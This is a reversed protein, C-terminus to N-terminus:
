DRINDIKNILKLTIRQERKLAEIHSNQMREFHVLRDRDNTICYGKSNAKDCVVVYGLARLQKSFEAITRTTTYLGRSNLENVIESAKIWKNFNKSLITLMDLCTVKNDNKM